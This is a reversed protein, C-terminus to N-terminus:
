YDKQAKKRNEKKVKDVPSLQAAFEERGNSTKQEPNAQNSKPKVMKTDEQLSKQAIM